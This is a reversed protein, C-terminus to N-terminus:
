DVEFCGTFYLAAVAFAQFYSREVAITYNGTNFYQYIFNAAILGLLIYFPKM